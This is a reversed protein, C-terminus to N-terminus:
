EARNESHGGQALSGYIRQLFDNQTKEISWQGVVAKGFYDAKCVTLQYFFIYNKCKMELPEGCQIIFNCIIM